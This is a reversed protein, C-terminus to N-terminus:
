FFKGDKKQFFCWITNNPINYSGVMQENFNEILVIEGSNDLNLKFIGKSITGVWICNNFRDVKLAFVRANQLYKLKKFKEQIYGTYNETKYVLGKLTGFYQNGFIDKCFSTIIMSRNLIPDKFIPVMEFENNKSVKERYLGKTTGLHVRGNLTDVKFTKADEPLIISESSCVPM